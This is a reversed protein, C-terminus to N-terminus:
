VDSFLIQCAASHCLLHSRNAVTGRASMSRWSKPPFFVRRVSVFALMLAPALVSDLMRCFRTLILNHHKSYSSAAAPWECPRQLRWQQSGQLGVCCCVCQAGPVARQFTATTPSPTPSRSAESEQSFPRRRYSLPAMSSSAHMTHITTSTSNPQTHRRPQVIPLSGRSNRDVPICTQVAGPQPLLACDSSPKFSEDRSSGM